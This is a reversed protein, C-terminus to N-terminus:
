ARGLRRKAGEISDRLTNLVQRREIAPLEAIEHLMVEAENGQDPGYLISLEKRLAGTTESLGLGLSSTLEALSVGLADAWDEFDRGKIVARNNEYASVTKFSIGLKEGLDKQTLGQRERLAQLRAGFTLPAENRRRPPMLAVVM